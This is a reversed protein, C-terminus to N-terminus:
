ARAIARQWFATAILFFVILFLMMAPWWDLVTGFTDTMAQGRDDTIMGDTAGLLRDGITTMIFWMIAGVGVAVIAVIYSQSQARADMM